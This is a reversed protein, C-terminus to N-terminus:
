LNFVISILFSNVSSNFSFPIFLDFRATGYASQIGLSVTASTARYKSPDFHIRLQEWGQTTGEKQPITGDIHNSVGRPEDQFSFQFKLGEWAYTLGGVGEM